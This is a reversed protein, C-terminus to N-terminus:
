EKQSITHVDSMYNDVAEPIGCTAFIHRYVQQNLERMVTNTLEIAMRVQSYSYGPEGQGMYAFERKRIIYNSIIKVIYIQYSWLFINQKAIEKYTLLGGFPLVNGTRCFACQNGQTRLICGSSVSTTYGCIDELKGRSRNIFAASEICKKFRADKWAYRLGGDELIDYGVIDM